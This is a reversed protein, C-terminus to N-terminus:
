AVAWSGEVGRARLVAALRQDLSGAPPASPVPVRAARPATRAARSGPVARVGRHAAFSGRLVALASDRDVPRGDVLWRQVDHGACRELVVGATFSVTPNACTCSSM